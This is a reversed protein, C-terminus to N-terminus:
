PMGAGHQNGAGAMFGRANADRRCAGSTRFASIAALHQNIDGSHQLAISRERWSIDRPPRKAPSM